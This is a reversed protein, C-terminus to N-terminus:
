RRNTELSKNPAAERLGSERDRAKQGRADGPLDSTEKYFEPQEPKQGWAILTDYASKRVIYFKREKSLAM